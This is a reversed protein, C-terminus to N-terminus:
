PTHKGHAAKHMEKIIADIQHRAQIMKHLAIKWHDQKIENMCEQITQSLDIFQSHLRQRLQEIIKEMIKMHLLVRKQIQKEACEKFLKYVQSLIRNADALNKATENIKGAKLNEIAASINLMNKVETLNSIIQDKQECESPLKEALSLLENTRTLTRQYAILLGRAQIVRGPSINAEHLLAQLERATARLNNFLQEVVIKIDDYNYNGSLISNELNQLTQNINELQVQINNLATEDIQSILTENAKIAKIWNNLREVTKEILQISKLIKRQEPNEATSTVSFTALSAIIWLISVLITAVAKSRM